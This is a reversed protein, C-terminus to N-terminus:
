GGHPRRRLASAGALTLLGLLAIGGGTAPLPSPGGDDGGTGGGPAGGGGTGGDPPTAAATPLLFDMAPANDLQVLFSQLQSDPSLINSVVFATGDFIRDGPKAPRETPVEAPGAPLGDLAELLTLPVTLTITGAEQDVAGPIATNGLYTLCQDDAVNTGGPTGCESPTAGYDSHGFTFGRVPDWNAQASEYRFGDVFRFLFLLSQGQADLAAQQLAADSLDDVTMRVTFGGSPDPEGSTPDIPPLVEVKTLDAAPVPLQAAPAFLSSYDAIADGTPDTSSTRLAHRGNLAITGGGNSPGAVQRIVMPSSVTGATDGPRKHATNFVVVLEGTAPNYDMAFFDVLSRDGGTTCGIGLLCIQGYHNPHTTAKVQSFTPNPDLANLSQNVYVNWTRDDATGDPDQTLDAPVDTPSGYFSVAVRGPEGGAAVWPFVTSGVGRRNVLFRDSGIRVKKFVTPDAVGGNCQDLEDVRVTTMYMDFDAKDGYATYIAEGEADHDAVAFSAGAPGDTEAIVCDNWTVGDDLSVALLVMDPHTEDADDTWPFYVIPDDGFPNQAAPITRLPGPFLPSPGVVQCSPYTLGGDTSTCLEIQRTPAIRNFNLFARTDSTAVIWQRDVAAGVLSAASSEITHGGDDSVATAFELLGSLGNYAVHYTGQDNEVPSTTLACDGGGGLSQQGRPPEGLLHFQDGGDDSVQWYDEAQSFGTPGCTYIRGNGDIEMIPEGEDRQIDAPVAASFELGNAPGAPPLVAAAAASSTTATATGDYAQPLENAFPCAVVTYVGAELDSITVVEASGSGDQNAVVAGQDDFVTLILDSSAGAPTWSIQVEVDWTLGETSAPLTVTLEHSDQTAADTPLSCESTANAGPQVTGTWTVSAEGGVAGPVALTSGAPESAVATAVPAVVVSVLLAILAAIRVTM